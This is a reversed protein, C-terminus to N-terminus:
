KILKGTQKNRARGAKVMHQSNEKYTAWELNEIHNNCRNFDKHNICPKNHPNPIFHEAVLRHIKKNLTKGENTRLNVKLYEHGFDCGKMIREERFRMGGTNGVKSWRALSKVRGFNSIEYYSCDEIPKWVEEMNIYIQNIHHNM